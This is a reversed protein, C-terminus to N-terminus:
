KEIYESSYIEKIKMRHGLSIETNRSDDTTKVDRELKDTLVTNIEDLVYNPPTILFDALQKQNLQHHKIAM